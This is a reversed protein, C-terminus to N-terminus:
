GRGAGSGRTQRRPSPAPKGPAVRPPHQLDRRLGEQVSSVVPSGPEPLAPAPGEQYVFRTLEDPSLGTAGALRYITDVTPQSGRWWGSVAGRSVGVAEAIETDEYLRNLAAAARVYRKFELGRLEVPSLVDEDKGSKRHHRRAGSRENQM